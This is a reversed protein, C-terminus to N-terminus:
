NAVTEIKLALRCAHAVDLEDLRPSTPRLRALHIDTM